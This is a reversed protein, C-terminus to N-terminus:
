KLTFDVRSLGAKKAEESASGESALFVREAAVKGSKLLADKVAQARALALRKLDDGTVTTHLLLLREMEDDPLRKVMGIVTRAKPFKGRKYAEFLYESYEKPTLQVADVSAAAQGKKLLEKFRQAKM